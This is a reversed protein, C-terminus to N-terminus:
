TLPPMAIIQNGAPVGCTGPQLAFMRPHARFNPRKRRPRAPNKTYHALLGPNLVPNGGAESSGAIFM